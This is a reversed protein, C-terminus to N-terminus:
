IMEMIHIIFSGIHTSTTSTKLMRYQILMWLYSLLNLKRLSFISGVFVSCFSFAIWIILYTEDIFQACKIQVDTTLVKQLFFPNCWYYFNDDKFTFDLVLKSSTVHSLLLVKLLQFLWTLSLPTLSTELNWILIMTNLSSSNIMKTLRPKVINVALRTSKYVWIM